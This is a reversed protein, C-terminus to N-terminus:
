GGDEEDVREEDTEESDGEPYDKLIADLWIEFRWDNGAPENTAVDLVGVDSGESSSGGTSGWKEAGARRTGPEGAVARVRNGEILVIRDFFFGTGPQRGKDRLARMFAERIFVPGDERPTRCFIKIWLGPLVEDPDSIRPELLVTAEAWTYANLNPEYQMDLSTLFVQRRESRPPAQGGAVARLVATATNAQGLVGEPIPVAEHIAQTIKPIIAKNRQIQILGETDEREQGGEGELVQKQDMLAKGAAYVTAAQEWAPLSVPPGNEIVDYAEELTLSPRNGGVALARMDQMQRFWILGGALVLCAATAAFAPRKKRWVVQKAIETPLLNSTVKTLDLGQLALGYSVAFSLFEEVLADDRATGPSIANHFARPIEVTLGLNRQLFQQLGPLKFANGLGVIKQIEADRHTSSYFGISRQLEQVLDAFVPRMAQFVQRRYKSTEATRKLSEAKAFSLKFSKVLAETFASGGIAITRTWLSNPTAIILDANEAGIDVLVVTDTGLMGDFVAANYVALPCSQVAIPEIASQEFHLLHERLLERKMAFIGVEVDPLDEQQFTQYDWIVEDLDFPIQQDAEYRVIDPIRKPAVPPLKTFRALTHQGPVAVVVRDKSIDNRSLFKELAGRILEHRDAGPQSLNTPHEIFDHAAIEVKGEAGARLKIAKLACRGLDIGWVAQTTAM